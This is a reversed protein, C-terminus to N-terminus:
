AFEEAEPTTLWSSDSRLSPPSRGAAAAGISELDCAEHLSRARMAAAAWYVSGVVLYFQFSGPLRPLLLAGLYNAAVVADGCPQWFRQHDLSRMTRRSERRAVLVAMLDATRYNLVNALLFSAVGLDPDKLALVKYAAWFWFFTGVAVMTISHQVLKDAASAVPVRVCRRTAFTAICWGVLSVAALAILGLAGPQM